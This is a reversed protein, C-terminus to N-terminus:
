FMERSKGEGVYCRSGDKTDNNVHNATSSTGKRGKKLQKM